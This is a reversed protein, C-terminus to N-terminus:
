FCRDFIFNATNQADSYNHYFDSIMFKIGTPISVAFFCIMVINILKKRNTELFSSNLLIWLGWIIIIHASIIRTMYLYNYALVYIVM